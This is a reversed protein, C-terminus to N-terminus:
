LLSALILLAFLLIIGGATRNVWKLLSGQARRFLIGSGKSLLFWWLASGVFVGLVVEAAVISRGVARHLGFGAFVATYTIISIPNTLALLLASTFDGAYAATTGREGPTGTGTEVKSEAPGTLLIRIGLYSLIAVGALRIWFQQEVLFSSIFTLGFVAIFALLADAVAAGLGSIFGSPFGRAISRSICLAGMPGVPAAISFGVIIGKLVFGYDM